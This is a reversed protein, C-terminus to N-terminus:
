EIDKMRLVGCRETCGFMFGFEVVFLSSSNVFIAESASACWYVLWYNIHRWGDFIFVFVLQSSELSFETHSIAFARRAGLCGDDGCWLVGVRCQVTGKSHEGM